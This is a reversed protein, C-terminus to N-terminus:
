AARRAPRHARSTRGPRRQSALPVIEASPRVPAAPPAAARRRRRLERVLMVVGLGASVLAGVLAPAAGVVLDYGVGFPAAALLFLRLRLTDRQLRGIMILSCATMALLSALGSWTALCIVGVVGPFAYGIRRLWPRDGAFFALATQTAGLGAVGAGSWAGLLAYQVAYDAGVGLQATLIAKRARFLPWVLQSCLGMAGFAGAVPHEQFFDAFGDM